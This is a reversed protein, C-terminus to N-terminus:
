VCFRCNMLFRPIRVLLHRQVTKTDAFKKGCEPCSPVARRRLPPSRSTARSAPASASISPILCSSSSPSSTAAEIKENADAGKEGKPKAGVREHRAVEKEHQEHEKDIVAAVTAAAAM